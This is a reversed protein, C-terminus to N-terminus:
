DVNDDKLLRMMTKVQMLVGVKICEEDVMFNENHIPATWGKEKNGSGLYYYAGPVKELFFAFDDAGMSPFEKYKINDKGLVEEAVEGLVKVIKDHNILAPYGDQFEVSGVGGHAKATSEVIERIRKKAFERTESDLTRLTGSMTVQRPIINNKLGGNIQGLTLVVSNLPSINRSVLTQLATIIYGAVVISDVTTDPYAAHGSKGEINIYFENTAANTKGYRLEIEGVDLAPNVHLALIYNVDPRKLYGEKIMRDAGGVAEEAPQFFIKINGELEGEMEKFIRAVGLHITTHVDHGCAHMVGENVSKFPLDNSELIPLADIDARAGITKGEKKGRIIAVVGTEAVGKVHEINWRELYECIKDCTRYEDESIEPYMHFDRRIELLEPFLEDIRKEIDM